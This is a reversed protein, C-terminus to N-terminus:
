RVRIVVTWHSESMTCITGTPCSALQAILRMLGPELAFYTAKTSGCSHGPVCAHTAGTTVTRTVIASQLTVVKRTGQTSFIWTSALDVIIHAGPNVVIVHGNDAATITVTATSTDAAGISTSGLLLAGVAVLGILAHRSWYLRGKASSHTVNQNMEIRENRSTAM